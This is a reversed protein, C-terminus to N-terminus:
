EFGDLMADHLPEVANKEYTCKSCYTSPPVRDGRLSVGGPISVLPVGHERCVVPSGQLDGAEPREDAEALKEHLWEIRREAHGITEQIHAKFHKPCLNTASVVSCGWGKPMEDAEITTHCVYCGFTM